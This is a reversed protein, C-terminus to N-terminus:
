QFLHKVSEYITGLTTGGVGLGLLKQRFKIAEARVAADNLGQYLHQAKEEGLANQLRGNDRLKNIANVVKYPDITETLPKSM